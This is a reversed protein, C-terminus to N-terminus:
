SKGKGDGGKVLLSGRTASVELISGVIKPTRVVTEEKVSVINNEKWREMGMVGTMAVGSNVGWSTGLCLDGKSSM